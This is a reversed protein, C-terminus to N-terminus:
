SRAECVVEPIAGSFGAVAVLPSIIVSPPGTMIGLVLNLKFFACQFTLKFPVRL